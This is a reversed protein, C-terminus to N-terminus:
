NGGFLGAPNKVQSDRVKIKNNLSTTTYSCLVTKTELLLHNKKLVFRGMWELIFIPHKELPSFCFQTAQAFIKDGFPMTM